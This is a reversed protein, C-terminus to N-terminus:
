RPRAAAARKFEAGAKFKPVWTAPVRGCEGTKPNRFDRAPRQARSFKGFGPIKVTEGTAVTAAVVDLFAAVSEEAARGDGLKEAVAGVFQGKNMFENQM